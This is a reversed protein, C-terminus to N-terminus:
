PRGGLRRYLGPWRRLQRDLWKVFQEVRLMEFIADQLDRWAEDPTKKKPPKPNLIHEPHGDSSVHDHPSTWSM